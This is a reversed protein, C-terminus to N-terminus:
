QGGGWCRDPAPRPKTYQRYKRWFAHDDKAHVCLLEWEAKWRRLEQAVTEAKAEAKWAAAESLRVEDKAAKKTEFGRISADTLGRSRARKEANLEKRLAVMAARREKDRTAAEARERRVATAVWPAAIARQHQVRQVGRQLQRRTKNRSLRKAYAAASEKKAKMAKTAKMSKMAKMAMAM